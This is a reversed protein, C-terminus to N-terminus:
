CPEAEKEKRSATCDQLARTLQRMTPEMEEYRDRLTMSCLSLIAAFGADYDTSIGCRVANELFRMAEGAEFLLDHQRDIHLAATKANGRSLELSVFEADRKAEAKREIEIQEFSKGPVYSASEDAAM